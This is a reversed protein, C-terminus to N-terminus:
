KEHLGRLSNYGFEMIIFAETEIPHEVCMCMFFGEIHKVGSFLFLLRPIM